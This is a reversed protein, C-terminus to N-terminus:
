AAVPSCSEVFGMARRTGVMGNSQMVTFSWLDVDEFTTEAEGAVVLYSPATKRAVLQNSTSAVFEFDCRSPVIVHSPSQVPEFIPVLM